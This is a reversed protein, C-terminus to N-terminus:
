ARRPIGVPGRPIRKCMMVVPSVLLWISKSARLSYSTLGRNNVPIKRLGVHQAFHCVVVTPGSVLV